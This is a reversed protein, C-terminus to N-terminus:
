SPVENEPWNVRADFFDCTAQRSVLMEFANRVCCDPSTNPDGTWGTTPRFHKCNGCVESGDRYGMAQRVVAIEPSAIMALRPQKKPETKM